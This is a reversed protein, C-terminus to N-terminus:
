KEKSPKVVDRIVCYLLARVDSQGTTFGEAFIALAHDLMAASIGNEDKISALYASTEDEIRKQHPCHLAKAAIYESM